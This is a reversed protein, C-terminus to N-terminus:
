PETEGKTRKTERTQLALPKLDNRIFIYLVRIGWPPERKFQRLDEELFIPFSIQRYNSKLESKLFSEIFIDYSVIMAPNAERIFGVPIAGIAGSKREKPVLMPHFRLAAPTILGAADLIKGRFQYGLGGIESTMLTEAPYEKYLMRGVSQYQRVRGGQLFLGTDAPNKWASHVTRVVVSLQSYIFPLCILALSIQAVRSRFFMVLLGLSLLLPVGILPYYWPFLNTRAFLYAGLVVFGSLLVVAAKRSPAETKRPYLSSLLVGGLGLVLLLCTHDVRHNLNSIGSVSLYSFQMFIQRFSLIYLRSKALMSHPVVSHFFYLQYIFLPFIASISYLVVQKWGITKSSIAYLAALISMVTLEPRFFPLIGFLIFAEPREKLLLLLAIGAVLMTIPTEMLGVGPIFLMAIYLLFIAVRIVIGSQQRSLRVFIFVYVFAGLLTFMANLISVTALFHQQLHIMRLLFWLLALLIVWGTSSSGNVPEDINFYPVGHDSLNQAIRFHIYADDYAYPRLIAYVQILLVAISLSAAILIIASIRKM